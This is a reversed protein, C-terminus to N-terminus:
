YVNLPVHFDDKILNNPTYLSGVM